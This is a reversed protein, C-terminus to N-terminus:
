FAIIGDYRLTSHLYSHAVFSSLELTSYLHISECLSLYPLGDLGQRDRRCSGRHLVGRGTGRGHQQPLRM